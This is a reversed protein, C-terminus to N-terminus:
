ELLEGLIIGYYYKDGTSSKDVIYRFSRGGLIAGSMPWLEQLSKLSSLEKLKPSVYFESLSGNRYSSMYGYGEKRNLVIDEGEGIKLEIGLFKQTGNDIEGNVVPKTIGNEKLIEKFNDTILNIEVLRMKQLEQQLAAIKQKLEAIKQKFSIFREEESSAQSAAGGIKNVYKKKYKLYKEM